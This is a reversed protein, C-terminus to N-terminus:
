RPRASPTSRLRGVLLRRRESHDHLSLWVSDTQGLDRLRPTQGARVRLAAGPQLTVITGDPFDLRAERGSLLVLTWACRSSSPAIPRDGIMWSDAERVQDRDADDPLWWVCAVAVAVAAALTAAVIVVESM